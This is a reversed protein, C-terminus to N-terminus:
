WFHATSESPQSKHCSFCFSGGVNKSRLFPVSSQSHPDHCTMCQLKGDFFVLGAAEVEAISRFGSDRSSDYILSIPHQTRLDTDFYVGEFDLGGDPDGGRHCDECADIRTNAPGPGSYLNPLDIIEDLGLTGDHCSLCSLSNGTPQPDALM